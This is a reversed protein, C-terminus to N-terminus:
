ANSGAGTFTLITGTIAKPQDAHVWHGAGKITVIQSEPFLRKIEMKDGDKISDSNEGRIFLVPKTFPVDSDVGELLSDYRRILVPMNAKWSFRGEPLRGLNKLLFKITAEDDNLYKRFSNEADSRDQLKAPDISEIAEIVQDHHDNYKKTSIDVVILKEIKDPHDFAFQMAVKGGMSHGMLIASQIKLANILELIDDAMVKYNMEESHPSKGHNRLDVLITQFKGELLKAVTRWNDLMGFLGHLIIFPPGSGHIKHNLKMHKARAEVEDERDM